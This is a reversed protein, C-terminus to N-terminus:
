LTDWKLAGRVYTDPIMDDDSSRAENEHSKSARKSPEESIAEGQGRPGRAELQRPKAARQEQQRRRQFSWQGMQQTQQTGNSDGQGKAPPAQCLGMRLSKAHSWTQAM